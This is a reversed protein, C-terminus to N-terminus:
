ALLKFQEIQCNIPTMSNFLMFWFCCQVTKNQEFINMKIELDLLLKKIQNIEPDDYFDDTNSYSYQPFIKL